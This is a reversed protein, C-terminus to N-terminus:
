VGIWKDFRVSIGKQSWCDKRFQCFANLFTKLLLTCELQGAPLLFIHNWVLLLLVSLFGHPSRVTQHVYVFVFAISLYKGSLKTTIYLYLYSYLQCISVQCDPPCTCVHDPLHFLPSSPWELYGPGHSYGGKEDNYKKIKIKLKKM